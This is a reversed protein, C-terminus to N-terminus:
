KPHEIKVGAPPKLQLADPQLPPNINLHSYTVLQYDGSPEFIKERLPYPEGQEPIWLELKKVYQKAEGNKPILQLRTMAQGNVAESALITVDYTAAIETGSTGFGIMLFKDLQPGHKDLDFIQLTNIKPLYEQVRRKEITVTKLDPSTFDIKGQVEGPPVKKMTVTGTEPPSDENLVDTHTVHTVEATMAQFRSAAKDMRSLIEQLNDNAMGLPALTGALFLCVLCDFLLSDRSRKKM